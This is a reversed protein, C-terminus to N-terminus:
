NIIINNKTITVEKSRLRDKVLEINRIFLTDRSGPNRLNLRLLEKNEPNYIFPFFGHNKLIKFTEQEDFGYTENSQNLELQIVNLNKNQLIESGGLLVKEEYGEVDIKIMSVNTEQSLLKNLTIVDVLEVPGGNDTDVIKNLEGNSSSILLKSEKNSIGVQRLIINDCNNLSFNMKLRQFTSTVPEVAITKCGIVCSSILSYNGHNSGIDVFTDDQNLYNVMFSIQEYDYIYFYSNSKMCSDEITLLYKIDNVWNWIIPKTRIRLITNLFCYKIIGLLPSSTLPHDRFNKYREVLKKFVIM